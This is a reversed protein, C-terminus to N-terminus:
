RNWFLFGEGNSYIKDNKQLDGMFDKWQPDEPTIGLLHQPTMKIKESFIFIKDGEGKEFNVRVIQIQEWYEKPTSMYVSQGETAVRANYLNFYIFNYAWGGSYINLGVGKGYSSELFNGASVETPYLAGYTIRGNNALFTPLSLVMLLLCVITLFHKRRRLLLFILPITFFPAYLMFRHFQAGGSSILTLIVCYVLTGTLCGLLGKTVWDLKRFNLAHILAVVLGFGLIFVLWFIRTMNAWMPVQQGTNAGITNFISGFLEGSLIREPFDLLWGVLGTFSPTSLYIQWGLFTLLGFLFLSPTINPRAGDASPIRALKLSFIVGLIMFLLGFSLAAYGIVLAVYLFIFLIGYKLSPRKSFIPLLLFNFYLFSLNAPHFSQVISIWINSQVLMLTGLSAISSDGFINKYLFYLSFTFLLASFVLYITRMQFINLGTVSSIIAGLLPMGPFQFYGLNPQNPSLRGENLVYSVHGIIWIDDGGLGSPTIFTWFGLFILSFLCLLLIHFIEKRKRMLLFILLIMWLFYFISFLSLNKFIYTSSIPYYALQLQVPFLLIGISLLFLLILLPKETRRFTGSFDM